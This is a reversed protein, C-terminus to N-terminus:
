FFEYNWAPDKGKYYMKVRIHGRDKTTVAHCFEGGMYVGTSYDSSFYGEATKYEKGYNSIITMQPKGIKIPWLWTFGEESGHHPAILIDTKQAEVQFPEYQIYSELANKYLDGAISIKFDRWSYILFQSSNDLYQDEKFQSQAKIPDYSRCVMKGHGAYKGHKAKQLYAVYTALTERHEMKEKLLLNKWDYSQACVCNPWRTRSVMRRVEHIHGGHPHTIYLVDPSLSMRTQLYDLPSFAADGGLDV